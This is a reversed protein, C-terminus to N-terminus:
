RLAKRFHALYNVGVDGSLEFRGALPRYEIGTLDLLELECTRGWAELESPRIFRAYQHTGRPVMGVLYEAGVIALAFAKPTRNLTSLVIDGGPAALRALAALLAAPDPVHELVELCTVLDVTGPAEDALKDADMCRYQLNDFQGDAAHLRAVALMDEALDIGLVSAAGRSALGESVLGGGCGVDVCLRGAIGAREAIYDLRLPNIQHLGRMAGTPDWWQSAQAAFRM